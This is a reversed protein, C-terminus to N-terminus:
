NRPFPFHTTNGHTDLKQLFNLSRNASFNLRRSKSDLSWIRVSYQWIYLWFTYCLSIEWDSQDSDAWRVLILPLTFVPARSFNLLSPFDKKNWGCPVDNNKHECNYCQEATDHMDCPNATIDITLNRSFLHQFFFRLFDLRFNNKVQMTCFLLCQWLKWKM